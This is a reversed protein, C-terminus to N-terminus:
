EEGKIIKLDYSDDSGTLKKKVMVTLRQGVKYSTPKMSSPLKSKGMRCRKGDPMELIIAGLDKTIEIVSAVYEKGAVVDVQEDASPEHIAVTKAYEPKGKGSYISFRGYGTATKAGVGETVIAYKMAEMVIEHLNKDRTFGPISAFTKQANKSINKRVLARFVFVTGPKVALFKVPVPNMTDSPPSPKEDDRYYDPYHPNIIDVILEPLNEPYVDLFMVSGRLGDGDGGNGFLAPIDTKAEDLMDKDIVGAPLNEREELLQLLHAFRSIGKFSSAPIYPIGLNHEFLLSTEHPHTQGIGTVLPTMLRARICISEYLGSMSECFQDLMRQKEFLLDGTQSQKLLEKYKSCYYDVAKNHDGAENSSKFEANVPVYKNYWLGYNSMGAGDGVIEAAKRHTYLPSM